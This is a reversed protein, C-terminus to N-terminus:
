RAYQTTLSSARNSAIDRLASTKGRERYEPLPYPSPRAHLSARNCVLTEERERGEVM